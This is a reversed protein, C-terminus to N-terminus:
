FKLTVSAGFLHADSKFTGSTGKINPPSSITRDVWHVWMYGLDLSGFKNHFGSGISFSHRDADPLEAGLTADPIPTTDYTYGARLDLSKNVAYQGGLHYAWADEWNKADPKNNFAALNSGFALELKDYSSWGTWEADFELTLADTPKFVVGLSLDDRFAPRDEQPM